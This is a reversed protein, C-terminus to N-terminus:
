ALFELFMQAQAMDDPTNLNLFPDLLGAPTALLPFDVTVVRHRRLFANIRRNDPSQLWSELDEAISFPWIAFVPHSRGASAAVIIADGNRRDDLRRALDTPLFPSDCPATLIRSKELDGIARLGALVGALPGAQGALTDPVLRLGFTTELDAPANLLLPSVQSALRRVVHGLVTETGLPLMAKNEGMRTSRGGALILGPLASATASM